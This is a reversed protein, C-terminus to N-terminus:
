CVLSVVQDCPMNKYTDSLILLETNNTEQVGAVTGNFPVLAIKAITTNKTVYQNNSVLTKLFM